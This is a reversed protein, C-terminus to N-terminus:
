LYLALGLLCTLVVIILSYFKQARQADQRTYETGINILSHGSPNLFLRHWSVNLVPTDWGALHSLRDQDKNDLWRNPVIVWYLFSLGSVLIVVPILLLRLKFMPSLKM